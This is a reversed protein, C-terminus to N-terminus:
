CGVLEAPNEIYWSRDKETLAAAAASGSTLTRSASVHRLVRPRAAESQLSFPRLESLGVPGAFSIMQLAAAPEPQPLKSCKSRPATM